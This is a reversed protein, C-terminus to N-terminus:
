MIFEIEKFAYSRTKADEHELMLHGYKNVGRIAAKFTRDGERFLTWKDIMFLRERYDNDIKEMERNRASEYRISIYRCLDIMTNYITHRLGTINTLSVPNPIESPFSKQNINLGIGAIADLIRNGSLTNEILIGAIKDNFIYIDNPWKISVSGSYQDLYDSIGLSVLKSIYFQDEALLFDPYLIASMTLNMGPSSEWKNGKQGRGHSQEDTYIVSGEAPRKGKLIQGAMDNTSTLKEHYFIKSGITM